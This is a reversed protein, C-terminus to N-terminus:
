WKTTLKLVFDENIGESFEDLNVHIMRREGLVGSGVGKSLQCM